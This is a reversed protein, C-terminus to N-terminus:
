YSLNGASELRRKIGRLNYKKRLQEGMMRNHVLSDAYNQLFSDVPYTRGEPTVYAIRNEVTNGTPLFSGVGNHAYRWYDEGSYNRRPLVIDNNVIPMRVYTSNPQAIYPGGDPYKARGGFKKKARVVFEDGVYVGTWKKNKDYKARPNLKYFEDLTMGHDHAIKWPSDNAVAKYITQDNTINRSLNVKDGVYVGRKEMEPNLEYLTNLSIGAKNAIAWPSDGKVVTYDSNKGVSTENGVTVKTNVTNNPKPSETSERKVAPKTEEKAKQTTAPTKATQMATSDARAPTAPKTASTDAKTVTDPRAVRNAVATTTDKPATKKVSTTDIAVNTQNTQQQPQSARAPTSPQRSNSINVKVDNLAAAGSLLADTTEQIKAEQKAAKVANYNDDIREGTYRDIHYGESDYAPERSTAAGYGLIAYPSKSAITQLLLSGLDKIFGKNVAKRVERPDLMDKPRTVWDLPERHEYFYRPQEQPPIVSWGAPLEPPAPPTPIPPEGFHNAWIQQEPVQIFSVPGKNNYTAPNGFQQYGGRYWNMAPSKRGAPFRRGYVGGSPFKARGGYKYRHVFSNIDLPDYEIDMPIPMESQESKNLLDYFRNDEAAVRADNVAELVEDDVYGLPRGQRDTVEGVPVKNRREWSVKNWDANDSAKKRIRMRQKYAERKAINNALKDAAKIGNRIRDLMSIEGAGGNNPTPTQGKPMGIEERSLLPRPNINTDYTRGNWNYTRTPKIEIPITKGETVVPYAAEIEASAVPRSYYPHGDLSADLINRATVNPNYVHHGAFTGFAGGGLGGLIGGIERGYHKGSYPNDLNGGIVSGAVSGFTGGALGGLTEAPAAIIGAGMAPAMAVQTGTNFIERAAEKKRADLHSGAGAIQQQAVQAWGYQNLEGNPGINNPDNMADTIINVMRFYDNNNGVGKQRSIQDALQNIYRARPNSSQAYVPVNPLGMAQYGRGEAPAFQVTYGTRPDYTSNTRNMMWALLNDEDGARKGRKALPRYNQKKIM